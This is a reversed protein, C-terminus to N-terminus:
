INFRRYLGVLIGYIQLDQGEKVFISKVSPNSARLEVSDKNFYIRKVTVEGEVIAIVIQGNEARNQRKVIVIDGDHIGSDIMSEGRVRLAVNEGNSLMEEPVEVSEQIEYVELPKGAAVTGLLPITVSRKGFNILRISRKQNSGGKTIFGKRELTKIHDFVTSISRFGFRKKIEEYSPAIDYRDIYQKIFQYIRKQKETLYM